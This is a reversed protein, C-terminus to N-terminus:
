PRLERAAATLGDRMERAANQPASADIRRYRAVAFQFSGFAFLGLAVLGLLAWGYPQRQLTSLAGGLGRAEGPDAHIAALALFVGVLVFVLGRAVLGLRGLPLVWREAAPALALGQGFGAKWGKLAIGVGTGVVVFGVIAVLWRGFPMSLLAATWERAAGDDDGKRSQFGVLLAIAWVALAANVAAAFGFGIRRTIAKIESGLHDADLLAQAARWLAFALLGLAVGGLLVGGLPESLVTQLAGRTGATRGSGLAALLALGGVLVYVVGRAAYGVRVLRELTRRRM